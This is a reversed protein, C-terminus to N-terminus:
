TYVCNCDSRVCAVRLRAVLIHLSLLGIELACRMQGSNMWCILQEYSMKKHVSDFVRHFFRLLSPLLSPLLCSFHFSNWPMLRVFSTPLHSARALVNKWVWMIEGRGEHNTENEYGSTKRRRSCRKVGSRNSIVHSLACKYPHKRTRTREVTTQKILNSHVCSAWGRDFHRRRVLDERRRVLYNTHTHTNAHTKKHTKTQTQTHTHKHTHTHTCKHTHTSSHTTRAPLLRPHTQSYTPPPHTKMQTLTHTHTHAITICV